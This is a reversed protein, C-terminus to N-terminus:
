SLWGSRDITIGDDAATDAGADEGTDMDTTGEELDTLETVDATSGNDALTVITNNTAGEATSTFTVLFGNSLTNNDTTLRTAGIIYDVADSTVSSATTSDTVSVSVALNYSASDLSSANATIDIVNEDAGNVALDVIDSDLDAWAYRHPIYGVPVLSHFGKWLM